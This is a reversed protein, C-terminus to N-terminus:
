NELRIKDVRERELLDLLDPTRENEVTIVRSDMTGATYLAVMHVHNEWKPVLWQDAPRLPADADADHPEPSRAYLPSVPEVAPSGMIATKRSGVFHSPSYRGKFSDPSEGYLKVLM